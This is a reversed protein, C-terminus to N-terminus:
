GGFRPSAARSRRPSRDGDSARRAGRRHCRLDEDAPGGSRPGDCSRQPAHHALTPRCRLRWPKASIGPLGYARRVGRGSRNGLCHRSAQPRLLHVPRHARRARQARPLDPRGAFRDRHANPRCVPRTQRARTTFWVAPRRPCDSGCTNFAPSRQDGTDPLNAVRIHIRNKNDVVRNRRSVLDTNRQFCDSHM